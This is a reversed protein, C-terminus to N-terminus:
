RIENRGNILSRPGSLTRETRCCGQHTTTTKLTKTKGLTKIKGITIFDIKRKRIIECLGKAKLLLLGQMYHFANGSVSFYHHISCHHDLLCRVM